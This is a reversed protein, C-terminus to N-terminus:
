KWKRGDVRVKVGPFRNRREEPLFLKRLVGNRGSQGIWHIKVGLGIKKVERGQSGRVM